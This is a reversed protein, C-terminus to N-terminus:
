IIEAYEETNEDVKNFIQADVSPQWRSPPAPAIADYQVDNSAGTGTTQQLDTVTSSVTALTTAYSANYKVDIPDRFVSEDM